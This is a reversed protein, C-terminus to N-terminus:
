FPANQYQHSRREASKRLLCSRRSALQALVKKLLHNKLGEMTSFTSECRNMPCVLEGDREEVPVQSVSGKRKSWIDESRKWQEVDDMSLVQVEQGPKINQLARPIRAQKPGPQSIALPDRAPIPYPLNPNISRLVSTNAKEPQNAYPDLPKHNRANMGLQHNGAKGEGMRCM